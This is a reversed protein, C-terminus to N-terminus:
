QAAGIKKLAEPLNKDSPLAKIGRNLVAKAEDFKKADNLASGYALYANADNLDLKIGQEFAGKALELKDLKALATGKGTWFVAVDPSTGTLSNLDDFAAQFKGATIEADARAYRAQLYDSKKSLANDFAKLATQLLTAQQTANVPATTSSAARSRIVLLTQGYGVEHIPNAPELEILKKFNANAQVEPNPLYSALSNLVNNETEYATPNEANHLVISRATAQADTLDQQAAPINNAQIDSQLLAVQANALLAGADINHSDYRVATKLLTIIKPIKSQLSVEHQARQFYIQSAYVRVGPYWLVIAALVAVTFGVAPAIANTAPVHNEGESIKARILGLGFWALVLFTLSWATVLATMALVLIIFLGALLTFSYRRQLRHWCEWVAFVIIGIWLAVGAVGQTGLLESWQAGSRLYRGSWQTDMNFSLPRYHVFADFWTNPGTGVVPRDMVAKFATAASYTQNLSTETTNPLSTYTNLHLFQAIMGAAALVVAVMVLKSSVNKTQSAQGIIVVIMGLAFVAWAVTQGLFLMVLWGMTVVLAIGLRSWQEKAKSWLLLGVTAVVAALISTQLSSNTLTSFLMDASLSGTFLSIDSFQFLQALLSFGVGGLLAAWIIFREHQTRFLRASLFYLSILAITVPLTEAYAGQIGNLSMWPNIATVTGVLTAAGLGLILWDMPHWKWAMAPRRFQSLFFALWAITVVILLLVAKHIEWRDATWTGVMLPIFFAGVALAMKATLEWGSIGSPRPRTATMAPKTLPVTKKVTTKKPTPM